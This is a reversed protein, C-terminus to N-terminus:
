GNLSLFKATQHSMVSFKEQNLNWLKYYGISSQSFCRGCKQAFLGFIRDEENACGGYPRAESVGKEM